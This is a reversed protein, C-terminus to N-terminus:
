KWNYLYEVMSVSSRGSGGLLGSRPWSVRAEARIGIKADTGNCEVKAVNVYSDGDDEQCVPDLALIRRFNSDTYTNDFVSGSQQWLYGNAQSSRYLHIKTEDLSTIESEERSNNDFSVFEISFMAPDPDVPPEFVVVAAQDDDNPVLGTDWQTDAPASNGVKLWNSDRINRAVEIAERALNQGILQQNSVTTAQTSQLTMAMLAGLGVMIIGIALTAELLGQGSPYKKYHNTTSFNFM